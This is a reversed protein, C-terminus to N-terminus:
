FLSGPINVGKFDTKSLKKKMLLIKHAEAITNIKLKSWPLTGAFLHLLSYILSEIDDAVGTPKGEHARCSMYGLSGLLKDKEEPRIENIKKALGFDILYIIKNKEEFGIVLNDPKVDRHLYGIKHFAELRDIVQLGIMLITKLSFTRSKM